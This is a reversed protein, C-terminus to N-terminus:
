QSDLRMVAVHQVTAPAPLFGILRAESFDLSATVTLMRDPAVGSTQASVNLTGQGYSQTWADSAVGQAVQVPSLNTDEPDVAAGARAAQGAVNVVGHKLHLYWSLDVTGSVLMVMIPLGLAFEIAQAGRRSRM